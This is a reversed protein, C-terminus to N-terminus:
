VAHGETALAGYAADGQVQNLTWEREMRHLAFPHQGEDAHRFPSLGSM